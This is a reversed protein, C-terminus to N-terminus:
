ARSRAEWAWKCIGVIRFLKLLEKKTQISTASQLM